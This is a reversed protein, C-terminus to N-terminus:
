IHNMFMIWILRAYYLTIIGTYDELGYKDQLKKWIPELHTTLLNLVPIILIIIITSDTEM